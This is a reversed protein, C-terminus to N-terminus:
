QSTQREQRKHQCDFWHEFWSFLTCLLLCCFSCFVVWSKRWALPFPLALSSYSLLFMFSWYGNLIDVWYKPIFIHLEKELYAFYTSCIFSNCNDKKYCTSSLTNAWPWSRTLLQIVNCDLVKPKLTLAREERNPLQELVISLTAGM